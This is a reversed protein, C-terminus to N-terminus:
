VREWATYAFTVTFEEITDYNEMNLEIDGVEKPFVNSYIYESLIDNEDLGIQQVVIYSDALLPSADTRKGMDREHWVNQIVEQWIEFFNRVSWEGENLFTLSLDNYTTDGPLKITSGFYKMEYEGLARNPLSAAKVHYTLYSKIPDLVDGLGDINPVNFYVLFRNPRVIKGLTEKFDYLRIGM